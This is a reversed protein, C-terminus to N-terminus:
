NKSCIIINAYRVNLTVASSTIATISHTHSGGGGEAVTSPTVSSGAFGGGACGNMQFDTFGSAPPGFLYRLYGNFPFIHTHSPMQATSLTTAGIAGGSITPTQNAFVTSYATTGGTTGGTGSVLRMDYDNLTTVQTWGTPAAAQYFLLVTGTAFPPANAASTWATGNSTLINGSTGPSPFSTQGTGGVDATVTTLAM